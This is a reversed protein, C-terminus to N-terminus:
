DKTSATDRENSSCRFVFDKVSKSSASGGIVGGYGTAVASSQQAVVEKNIVNYGNPCAKAARKYCKLMSGGCVAVYAPKGDSWSVVPPIKTSCGLAFALGMLSFIKKLYARSM